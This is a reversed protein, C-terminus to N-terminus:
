KWLLVLGELVLLLVAIWIPVRTAMALVTFVLALGVLLLPLTQM